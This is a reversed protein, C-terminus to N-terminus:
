RRGASSSPSTRGSASSTRSSGSRSRRTGSTCASASSRRTTRSSRKSCTSRGSRSTSSSSRRGSACAPGLNAMCTACASRPTPTAPTSPPSSSTPCPALKARMGGPRNVGGGRGADARLFRRTLNMAYAVTAGWVIMLSLMLLMLVGRMAAAVHPRYAIYNWCFHVVLAVAVCTLPLVVKRRRQPSGRPCRPPRLTLGVAFGLLGGMLSHAFLRVVEAGLLLADKDASLGIYLLSEEMAMGLGGLTGYVLGDLPDNFHRRFGVAIVVAM